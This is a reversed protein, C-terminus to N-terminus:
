DITTGSTGTMLVMNKGECIIPPQWSAKMKSCGPGLALLLSAQLCCCMSRILCFGPVWRPGIVVAGGHRGDPQLMLGPRNEPKDRENSPLLPELFVKWGPTLFGSLPIM